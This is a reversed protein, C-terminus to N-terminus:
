CEKEKQNTEKRQNTNRKTKVYINYYYKQWIKIIFYM